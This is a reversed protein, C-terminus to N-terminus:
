KYYQITKTDSICRKRKPAKRKWDIIDYNNRYLVRNKIRPKDGKGAM